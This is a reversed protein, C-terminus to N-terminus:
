VGSWLTAVRTVAALIAKSDPREAVEVRAPRLPEISTAVAPSLCLLFLNRVAEELGESRALQAFISGTRPSMLIVADISGSALRDRIQPQLVEAPVAQYSVIERLEIGHAAVAGSLDFAVDTGRVHVLPAGLDRAAEVIIPLLDEASGAGKSVQAFGLETALAATAAGVAILPLHKASNIAASQALARLANRSTVVLGGIGDFAHPRVPLPEIRLLPEVSVTHGLAELQSRM